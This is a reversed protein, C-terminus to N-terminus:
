RWGWLGCGRPNDLTNRNITNDSLRGTIATAASDIGTVKAASFGRYGLTQIMADADQKWALVVEDIVSQNAQNSLLARSQNLKWITLEASLYRLLLTDTSNLGTFPTAYGLANFASYIYADSWDGARQVLDLNETGADDPDDIIALNAGGIIDKVAQYDALDWEPTVPDATLDSSAVVTQGSIIFTWTARYTVGVVPSSLSYSYQGTAPNTVGASTTAVVTASTDTRIISITPTSDANTAVSAVIIQRQFILESM